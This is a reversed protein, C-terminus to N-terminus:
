RTMDHLCDFSLVLSYDGNNPLQEARRDFIEVNTLGADAVRTQAREVALRSLEYGHFTSRPYEAALTTLAVAAGCGVDAVMTGAALRDAGGDLAPLITPVLSLRAWPG